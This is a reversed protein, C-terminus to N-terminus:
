CYILDAGQRCIAQRSGDGPWRCAYHQGHQVWMNLAAWTGPFAESGSYVGQM